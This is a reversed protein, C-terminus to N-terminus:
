LWSWNAGNWELEGLEEWKDVVRVIADRKSRSLNSSKTKILLYERVIADKDMGELPDKFHEGFMALYANIYM